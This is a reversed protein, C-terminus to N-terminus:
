EFRVSKTVLIADNLVFPMPINDKPRKPISFQTNKLLDNSAEYLTLELVEGKPFVLELDTYTRDSIYHTVLKGQRRNKLFFESLAVGNISAKELTIENTFVELRNIARKPTICLDLYRNPGIVTDRTKEVDMLPITKKPADSVYAFSSGYKSSITTNGLKEPVTRDVGIYQATWESLSREYTAWKASQTDADYVYLLSTPKANEESFGANFHAKIMAGLFILLCLYALTKKRRMFHFVPLLLLFLLTTLVTSAVLMKLGLGVPFMKLFPAFIFIAPLALFVMLYVSPVEQNLLVWFSALLAFLPLIFFSAGPLYLAVLACIVLWLVIPAILLNVGKIARFRRYVYFCVGLSLFVFAWIYTHGNYTFGHLIDRYHPYMSKLISWSFYGFLGNVTLVMLLPVFGKAIPTLELEKKRFGYVLMALFALVVLGFMPWIWEFPYSVLKFFPVNFYISDNLSKLDTLDAMSFHRLLPMLYTGQHTLTNTDLREPTDRETHYDYHDDIFAFNFGEIDGDERFVTLDTDNPLMKYISYALSNAVPYNPNATAFEEILRANGRNTEILMYSPGGSGRAEFNLVLGVDKRWPHEKVFLDAGNLGLEEADTILVIIDNKPKPNESLFARLGELITAVGSGADSAGLSSHPSSDYHSMLVLAKGPASGQIRALINTAKSLNGWDGATYGEQLSTSLGLKELESVIYGRVEEHAEFGVGHPKQGIQKVHELARQTSFYHEPQSLDDAYTPMLSEYSWYTALIILILATLSSFKKM